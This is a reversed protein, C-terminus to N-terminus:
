PVVSVWATARTSLHPPLPPSETTHPPPISAHHPHAPGCGSRLKALRSALCCVDPGGPAWWRLVQWSQLRGVAHQM